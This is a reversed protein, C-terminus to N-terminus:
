GCLPSGPGQARCATVLSSCIQDESAFSLSEVQFSDTGRPLELFINVNCSIYVFTVQVEVKGKYHLVAELEFNALNFVLLGASSAIWM